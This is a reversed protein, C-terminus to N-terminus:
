TTVIHFSPTKGAEQHQLDLLRECLARRFHEKYRPSIADMLSYVTEFYRTHLELQALDGNMCDHRLSTVRWGKCTLEVCYPQGEVSTVNLFILTSTRPLLESVFIDKVAFRLEHVAGIAELELANFSSENLRSPGNCLMEAAAGFPGLALRADGLSASRRVEGECGSPPTLPPSAIGVCGYAHHMTLKSLLPFRRALPSVDDSSAKQPPPPLDSRSPVTFSRPVLQCQDGKLMLDPGRDTKRCVSGASNATAHTLDQSSMQRYIQLASQWRFTEKQKYSPSIGLVDAVTNADCKLNVNKVLPRLMPDSLSDHM